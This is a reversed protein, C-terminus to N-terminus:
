AGSALFRGSPGQGAEAAAASSWSWLAAAGCEDKDAIAALMQIFPNRTNYMNLPTVLAIDRIPLIIHETRLNSHSHIYKVSEKEGLNKCVQSM